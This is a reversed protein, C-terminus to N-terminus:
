FLIPDLVEYDGATEPIADEICQANAFAMFADTKRYRPEIKGYSINGRTDTIKKTNNVNWRFYPNDGVALNHNVFISNLVVFNRMLDSPRILKVNKAEFADYGISKLALNLFSFRFNDVAIKEIVYKTGQQAIWNVILEAPIEVDNVFTLHGNRAWEDLPAKIGELDRSKACVWGHVIAYRKEGEKFLLCAAVFDNTKAFDIGVVCSKGTLDPLPENTALIDEWLAVEADKNGIPYNMRKAMFEPYYSLNYPMDSVEKKIQARLEPFDNVSPNAKIWKDPQKWEEEAEIRCWFVLTRNEPNYEKLIDVNQRLEDDLVGGRIHGNTTITIERGFKVKGLGSRLTNINTADTYEHKEDYIICGTRKSDKGRKSSSNFRLVAKTLKGTIETLTANFNDLLARKNRSDTPNNILEYLDMFSTKAQNESNALIDINYGKVGHAPSLFYFALFSIFGNKGAGRGVIIRIDKFFIDGSDKFKVGVILAFLFIEWPILKYDFYKQLSLGKEIAENDIYVDERELVPLVINDIMQEQEVCHEVKGSKILEIYDSIYKCNWM